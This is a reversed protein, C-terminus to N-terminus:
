PEKRAVFTVNWTDTTLRGAPELFPCCYVMKLAAIELLLAMEQVFMFRMIHDEQFQKVIQSNRNVSINYHVTVIQRIPDLSPAVERMVTDQGNHYEHCRKEPRQALVAPGFWGDFIFVGGPNLHKRATQLGAVLQENQTLYGMVAFMSVVVDYQKGNEFDTLNGPALGVETGVLRKRAHSLMDASLDFGDCELGRKVFEALHRGTGCGMDLLTKPANGFRSALDLVFDVEASYDKDAYYLDYFDSYESFVM